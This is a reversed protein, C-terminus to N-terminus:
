RHSRDSAAYTIMGDFTFEMYGDPLGFLADGGPVDGLVGWSGSGSANAFRGTGGTATWSGEGTFGEMAGVLEFAGEYSMVLEDGNAAVLEFTGLDATFDPYTCHTFEYDVRGLHSMQGTGSGNFRWIADVCGPATLDPGGGGMVTGKIPVATAASSPTAFGVLLLATFAAIRLVKM